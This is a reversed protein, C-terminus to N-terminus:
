IQHKYYNGDIYLLSVILLLVTISQTTISTDTSITLKPKKVLFVGHPINLSINYVPQKAVDGGVFCVVHTVLMLLLSTCQPWVSTLVPTM